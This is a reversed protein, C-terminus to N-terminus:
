FMKIFRTKIINKKCVRKMWKKTKIHYICWKSGPMSPKDDYVEKGQLLKSPYEFNKLNCCQGSKPPTTKRESVPTPESPKSLRPTSQFTPSSRNGVILFFVNVNFITRLQFAMKM